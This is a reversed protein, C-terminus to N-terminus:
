IHIPKGPFNTMGLARPLLDTLERVWPKGKLVQLIHGPIELSPSHNGGLKFTGGKGESKVRGWLNATIYKVKDM